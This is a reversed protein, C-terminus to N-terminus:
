EPVVWLTLGEVRSVRARRGLARASGDSSRASWTSGRCEVLGVGQAPVIELVVVGEGVLTDIAGGPNNVNLRARLPGRLVALAIVSLGSFLGWQMWPPGAAGAAALGAVVLASLGFFLMVLLGATALEFGLLALGFVAWM